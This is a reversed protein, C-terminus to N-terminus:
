NIQSRVEEDMDLVMGGPQLVRLPVPPVPMPVLFLLLKQLEGEASSGSAKADLVACSSSRGAAHTARM